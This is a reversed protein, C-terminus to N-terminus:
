WQIWCDTFQLNECYRWSEYCDGLSVSHQWINRKSKNGRRKWDVETWNSPATKSIIASQQTTFSATDLFSVIYVFWIKNRADSSPLPNINPYNFGHFFRFFDEVKTRFHSRIVMCCGSFSLFNNPLIKLNEAPSFTTLFYSLLQKCDAFWRWRM